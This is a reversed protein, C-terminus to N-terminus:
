RKAADARCAPPGPEAANRRESPRPDTDASRPRESPRPGADAPRPKETPRPHRRRAEAAGRTQRCQLSLEPRPEESSSRTTDDIPELINSSWGCHNLHNAVVTESLFDANLAVGIVGDAVQLFQYSSLSAGAPVLDNKFLPVRNKLVM